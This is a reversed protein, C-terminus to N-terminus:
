WPDASALVAASSTPAFMLLLAAAVVLVLMTVSASVQFGASLQLCNTTANPNTNYQPQQLEPDGCFSTLGFLYTSCYQYLKNACDPYCLTINGGQIYVSSNTSCRSCEFQQLYRYCLNTADGTLLQYFKLRQRLANLETTDCCSSNVTAPCM